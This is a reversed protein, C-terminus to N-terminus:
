THGALSREHVSSVEDADLSVELIESAGALSTTLGNGYLHLLWHTAPLHRQESPQIPYCGGAMIVTSCITAAWCRSMSCAWCASEARATWIARRPKWGAADCWDLVHMEHAWYADLSLRGDIIAVVLAAAAQVGAYNRAETLTAWGDCDDWCATLYPPDVFYTAPEWPADAFDGEIVTWHRIASVQAAVRARITEGWFSHVRRGSRM